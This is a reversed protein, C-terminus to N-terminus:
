GRGFKQLPDAHQQHALAAGFTQNLLRRLRRRLGGGGSGGPYHSFKFENATLTALPNGDDRSNGSSFDESSCSRWPPYMGRSAL